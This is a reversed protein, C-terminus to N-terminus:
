VRDSFYHNAIIYSIVVRTKPSACLVVDLERTVADIKSLRRISEDM